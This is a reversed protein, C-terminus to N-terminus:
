RKRCIPFIPTQGRIRYLDSASSFKAIYKTDHDEILAKPRAGGISSGHFLALDLEPTLPVGKEVREASRVLAELAFNTAARPAYDTALHQSDLAGVRDSGSELLCTLEDLDVTNASAGKRGFKKNMLVRRGWADPSADRICSPMTM